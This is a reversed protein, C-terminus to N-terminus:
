GRLAIKSQENFEFSCRAALESPHVDDMLM